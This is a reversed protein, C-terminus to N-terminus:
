KKLGIISISFPKKCLAGLEDNTQSLVQVKTETLKALKQITDKDDFNSAVLVEALKGSRLQKITETKGIVRKKTDNLVTTIKKM